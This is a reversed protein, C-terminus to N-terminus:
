LYGPTELGSIRGGSPLLAPSSCRLFKFFFNPKTGPSPRAFPNIGFKAPGFGILLGKPIRPNAPLGVLYLLSLKLLYTFTGGNSSSISDLSKYEIKAPLTKSDLILPNFKTFRTSFKGPASIEAAFLYPGASAFSENFAPKLSRLM